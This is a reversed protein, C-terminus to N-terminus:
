GLSDAAIRSAQRDLNRCELNDVYVQTTSISKHGAQIRGLRVDRSKDVVETISSHRIAHPWVRAGVARAIDDVIRWISTGTLRFGRTNPDLAVFLAGPQDGRLDIWEQIVGATPAPLARTEHEHDDAGKTWVRIARADLDVDELDLATVSSRRLALDFLLRLIAQDRAAKMRQKPPGNLRRKVEELMRRCVDLGPGSTDRYARSKAGDVELSWVVVGIRRALKVVSRLATLRCNITNPALGRAFMHAKFS